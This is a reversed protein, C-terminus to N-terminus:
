GKYKVVNKKHICRYWDDRSFKRGEKITILHFTSTFARDILFFEFRVYDFLCPTNSPQEICSLLRPLLDFRELWHRLSGTYSNWSRGNVMEVWKVTGSTELNLSSLGVSVSSSWRPWLVLHYEFPVRYYTTETGESGVGPLREPFEGGWLLVIFFSWM